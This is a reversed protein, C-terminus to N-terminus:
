SATGDQHSVSQQGRAPNPSAYAEYPRWDGLSLGYTSDEPEDIQGNQLVLVRITDGGVLVVGTAAGRDAVDVLPSVFPRDDWVVLDRRVPIQLSLRRSTEGDAHVFWAVSRALEAPSLAALEREVRGRLAAFSRQQRQDGDRQLQEGVKRLGNRLEIQWAPTHNTNAPDRPDTRVYVSLVPQGPSETALARLEDRDLRM